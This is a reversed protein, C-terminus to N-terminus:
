LSELIVFQDIDRPPSLLTTSSSSAAASFCSFSCSSSSPPVPCFCERLRNRSKKQWGVKSPFSKYVIIFNPMTCYTLTDDEAFHVIPMSSNCQQSGFKKRFNKSLGRVQLFLCPMCVVKILPGDLGKRDDKMLPVPLAASMSAFYARNAFLKASFAREEM